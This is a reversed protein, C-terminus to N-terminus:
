LIVIQDLIFLVGINGFIFCFYVLGCFGGFGGFLVLMIVVVKGLYVVLMLEGEVFCLFWDIMNKLLLLILSNYEFLVILFGDSEIFMKKFIWVNEMVGEECELDENFFFLFFDVFNIFM